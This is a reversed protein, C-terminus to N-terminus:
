LTIGSFSYPKENDGYWATLRPFDIRKGYMNMSEQKWFISNQLIKFYIDSESKSFFNPFLVYEGNLIYKIENNLNSEISDSEGGFIDLQSM